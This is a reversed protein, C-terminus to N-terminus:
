FSSFNTRVHFGVTGSMKCKKSQMRCRGLLTIAVGIFEFAICDIAAMRGAAAMDIMFVLLVRAIERNRDASIPLQEAKEVDDDTMWVDFDDLENICRVFSKWSVAVDVDAGAALISLM